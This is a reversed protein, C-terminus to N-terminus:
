NKRIFPDTQKTEARMVKNGGQQELSNFTFGNEEDVLGELVQARGRHGEVHQHIELVDAGSFREVVLQHHLETVNQGLVASLHLFM